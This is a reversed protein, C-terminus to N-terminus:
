VNVTALIPNFPLNQPSSSSMGSRSAQRPHGVTHGMVLFTVSDTPRLGSEFESLSVPALYASPSASYVEIEQM